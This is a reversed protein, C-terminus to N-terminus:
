LRNRALKGRMPIEAIIDCKKLVRKPIGRTENGVMLALTPKIKIKKYDISNKAQELAIIEVGEKKLRSILPAINKVYEWEISKEAGLAVKAIDGRIKEFRDVPTPTYGTLFIRTVAVADATLFIAGVNYVSRINHLILYVGKKNGKVM